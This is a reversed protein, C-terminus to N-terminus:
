SNHNETSLHKLHINKNIHIMCKHLCLSRYVSFCYVCNFPIGTKLQLIFVRSIFISRLVGNMVSQLLHSAVIFSSDCKSINIFAM